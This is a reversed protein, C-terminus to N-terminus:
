QLDTWALSLAYSHVYRAEKHQQASNGHTGCQEPLPGELATKGAFKKM